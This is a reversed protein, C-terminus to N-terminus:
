TPKAPEVKPFLPSGQGVKHGGPLPTALLQQLTKGSVSVGLQELGAAAKEPLIPLLGVCRPLDGPGLPEARHRAALAQAPDKALSFPETADIYGNAQRALEMPLM